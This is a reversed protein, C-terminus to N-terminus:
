ALSADRKFLHVVFDITVVAVQSLVFAVLAKMVGSNFGGYAHLGIGLENTGFWSWATVVTGGIALLSFGRGKVMGDWRAHLILANWIVILLAGNEKPDWGWFRGWSDDAWLGGLVTGVFSFLIGFCAAGYSCRYIDRLLKKDRNFWSTVLYGIGFAGAVLTAVYGLSVTLVHTSLWFQTDLVARLVPMTDGEDLGYAVRLSLVGMASSLLNGIGYRFFREVILGFVVSGWGIFVASSYLNIVPARETILYRCFIAFTHVVMSLALTAWIAQNFRIDGVFFYCLAMALACFYLVSSVTSPDCAQMWRELSVKFQSYAPIDRQSVSALHEDVALNFAAPDEATYAKIMNFFADVGDPGVGSEDVSALARRKQFDFFAPAFPKWEPDNVATKVDAVTPAVLRAADARSVTDMQRQINRMTEAVLRQRDSETAQPVIKQLEELSPIERLDPIQFTGATKLFEQLRQNLKLMKQEKFSLDKAEKTKLKEVVRDIKGSEKFVDTITYLKQKAKLGLESRVEPADIRIMPLDRLEPQDISIEMLWQMASLGRKSQSRAQIQQPTYDDFKISEKNSIAKLTMRAFADLPMMRGGFQVPIQGAAYFDFSNARKSPSLKGMVLSWPVLMSIALFGFVLLSGFVPILSPERVGKKSLAAREAIVERDRRRVFRVLTGFFHVLMGLATISCAIYPILWGANAVVQIGTLEKGGPLVSYNSQYFTEGQYRMPNNMWVRETFGQDEVPDYIRLVSSFDRPTDTGSYNIRQVDKLHVWYPKVERHFRLGFRYNTQDVAIADFFDRSGEGPVLMTRDSLWQSVLFSGLSEGSEKELLEVYASALNTEGDTGAAKDRAKVGAELGFGKTALNEEPVDALSSNAHYRLVRVDVPLAPDRILKDTTADSDAQDALAAILRSSPIAAVRDEDDVSEIFALEISDLNVFENTTQGEVMTLRQELQRDGFQFQGFMLLGIGLHILVNGGQKGFMVQCGVLMIVGAGLGKALQWVIRLGSDDFRYGTVLSYAIFAGIITAAGLSLVRMTMNKTQGGAYGLGLAIVTFTALTLGWVAQYSIAPEGQLGSESSGAVAILGAVFVGFALFGIGVALKLGSANIRFRTIKAAILNAMLLVGILAGGPFPIVFRIESEHPFFSQPFFDDIHLPAIWSLFYRQKVELMNMEDQALTGVFVIVLSFAFLAVTLKLSGLARLFGGLEITREDNPEVDVADFLDDNPTVTSM